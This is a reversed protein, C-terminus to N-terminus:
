AEEEKLEEEILEVLESITQPSNGELRNNVIIFAPVGREKSRKALMVIDKRLEQQREQITEYPSFREVAQKYSVGLPTLLRVVFFDSSLGGSQASVLM